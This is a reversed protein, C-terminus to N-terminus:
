LILFEHDPNTNLSHVGIGQDTKKVCYKMNGPGFSGYRGHKKNCDLFHKGEQYYYVKQNRVPESSFKGNNEFLNHIKPEDHIFGQAVPFEMHIEKSDRSNWNDFHKNKIFKVAYVIGNKRKRLNMNLVPKIFYLGAIPKDPNDELYQEAWDECEDISFNDGLDVLIININKEDQSVGHKTLNYCGDDLHGMFNQIENKHFPVKILMNYTFCFKSLNMQLRSLNSIGIVWNDVIFGQIKKSIGRDKAQLLLTPFINELSEWDELSPYDVTYITTQLHNVGLARGMIVFRDKFEKSKEEFIEQHKSKKYRKCSVNIKSGDDYEVTLDYGPNKSPPLIIRQKEGKEFASAAIIEFVAGIEVKNKYKDVKEKIWHEDISEVTKISNGLSYIENIALPDTRGWLLQLPHNDNQNLWKKDFYDELIEISENVYEEPINLKVDHKIEYINTRCLNEVKINM